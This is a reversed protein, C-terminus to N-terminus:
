KKKKHFIKVFLPYGTEATEAFQHVTSSPNRDDQKHESIANVTDKFWLM